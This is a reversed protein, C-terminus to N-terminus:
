LSDLSPSPLHEQDHALRAEHRAEMEEFFRLDSLTDDWLDLRPEPQASIM